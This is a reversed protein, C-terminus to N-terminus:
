TVNPPPLFDNNRVMVFTNPSRFVNFQRNRFPQVSGIFVPNFAELDASLYFMLRGSVVEKYMVRDQCCCSGCSPESYGIKTGNCGCNELCSVNHSIGAIDIQYFFLNRESFYFCDNSVKSATEDATAYLLYFLYIITFSKM